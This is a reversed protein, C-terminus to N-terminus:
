FADSHCTGPSSNSRSTSMLMLPTALTMRWKTGAMTAAFDPTITLKLEPQPREVVLGVVEVLPTDGILDLISGYRM